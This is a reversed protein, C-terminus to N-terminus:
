QWRCWAWNSIKNRGSGATMNCVAWNDAAAQLNIMSWREESNGQLIHCWVASEVALKRERTVGPYAIFRKQSGNHDGWRRIKVNVPQNRCTVQCSFSHIIFFFYFLFVLLPHIRYLLCPIVWSICITGYQVSCRLDCADQILSCFYHVKIIEAHSPTFWRRGKHASSYLNYLIQEAAM